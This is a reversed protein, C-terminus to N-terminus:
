DTCFGCASSRGCRGDRLYCPFRVLLSRQTGASRLRIVPVLSDRILRNPRKPGGMRVSLGEVTLVASRNGREDPNTRFILHLPHERRLEDGCMIGRHFTIPPGHNPILRKLAVPFIQILGVFKGAGVGSQQVGETSMAALALLLNRDLMNVDVGAPLSHDTQDLCRPPPIM